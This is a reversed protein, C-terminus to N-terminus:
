AGGFAIKRVLEMEDKTIAKYTFISYSSGKSVVFGWSDKTRDNASLDLKLGADEFDMQLDKPFCQFPIRLEDSYASSTILLIAILIFLKKM